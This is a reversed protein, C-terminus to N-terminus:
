VAHVGVSASQRQLMRSTKEATDFADRLDKLLPICQDIMATDKKMNIQMIHRSLFGYMNALNHSLPIRMDLSSSLTNVITQAKVLSDNVAAYDKKEISLKAIRLQKICEDFLKILLEGSSMTSLAQEKYQQYPNGLM